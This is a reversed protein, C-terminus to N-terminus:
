DRSKGQTARAFFAAMGLGIVLVFLMNLIGVNQALLGLAPPGVLFATYGFTAVMSVQKAGNKGEGAASLFLPFGLAVGMGWLASGLWGLYVNHSLIVLLLGVVGGGALLELMRRRGFKDVFRGGFFRTATMGIEYVVFAIGANTASTGIGEKFSLAMWDNGAGETLTIGLIGFGLLIVVPNKLPNISAVKEQSKDKHHLEQGTHNPVSKFTIIPILLAVGSIVAIQTLLSINFAVSLTGLGAGTFSGLSYAAHMRPLVSRNMKQEIASGDVNVAVDSLAYGAFCIFLFIITLAISHNEIAATAAILCSSSIVYGTILVPKTGFRAVINGSFLLSILSGLAGCLLVLGLQSSNVSLNAKVEPMRALLAAIGMGFFSFYTVVAYHWRQLARAEM